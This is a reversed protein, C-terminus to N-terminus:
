LHIKEVALTDEQDSIVITKVDINERHKNKLTYIVGAILAIAFIVAIFKVLTKM